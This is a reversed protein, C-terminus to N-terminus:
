MLGAIRFFQDTYSGDLNEKWRISVLCRDTDCNIQAAGEPLENGVRSKWAAINRSVPTTNEDVEITADFDVNYDGTVSVSRNARLIELMDAAYDNVSFHTDSITMSVLSRSQVTSIALAAFMVVALAVMAEILGVGDERPNLAIM